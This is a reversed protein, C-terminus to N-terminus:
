IAAAQPMARRTRSRPKSVRAAKATTKAASRGATVPSAVVAATPAAHTSPAHDPRRQRPRWGAVTLALAIAHALLPRLLLALAELVAATAVLLFVPLGPRTSTTTAM